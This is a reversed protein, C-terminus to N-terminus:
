GGRARARPIASRATRRPSSGGTSRPTCTARSGRTSPTGPSAAPSCGGRRGLGSALRVQQSVGGVPRADDAAARRLVRSGDAIRVSARRALAARQADRGADRTGTSCDSCSRIPFSARWTCGRGAASRYRAAESVAVRAWDRVQWELRHAALQEGRGPQVTANFLFLDARLPEIRAHMMLGSLPASTKSLLLSAEEGPGWHWRSRGFQVSWSNEVTYALYSEETGVAFDTGNVLADSYERVGALQGMYVHAYAFWRDLQAGGRLHVGSGDEWREARVDDSRTWDRRGELGTSLELRTAGPWERQFLRPTAGPAADGPAPENWHRAREIRRLALTRAGAPLPPAAGDGRLESWQLPRANLHPLRVGPAGPEYLELVRLEAELPDGVPLFQFPAATASEQAPLLLCLSFAAAFALPRPIM